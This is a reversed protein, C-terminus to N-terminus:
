NETTEQATVCSPDYIKVWARPSRDSSDLVAVSSVSANVPRETTGLMRCKPSPSHIPAGDPDSPNLIGQFHVESMGGSQMNHRGNLCSYIMHILM